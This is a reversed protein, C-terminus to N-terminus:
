HYNIIKKEYEFFFRFLFAHMDVSITLFLLVLCWFMNKGSSLFWWYRGMVSVVWSEVHLWTAFSDVWYFLPVHLWCMWWHKWVSVQFVKSHGWIVQIITSMGALSPACFPLMWAASVAPNLSLTAGVNYTQKKWGAAETTFVLLRPVAPKVWINSILRSRYLLEATFGHETYIFNGSAAATNPGDLQASEEAQWWRRGRWLIM